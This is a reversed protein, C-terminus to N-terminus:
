VTHMTNRVTTAQVDEEDYPDEQPLLDRASRDTEPTVAADINGSTTKSNYHVQLCFM